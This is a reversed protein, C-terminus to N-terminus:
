SCTNKLIWRYIGSEQRGIKPPTGIRRALSIFKNSDTTLLVLDKAKRRVM